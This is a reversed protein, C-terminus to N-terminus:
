LSQLFMILDSRQQASLKLEFRGNYFDVVDALTAASGNHFYPARASLGRLVPVKFNGVDACDGTILGRGLDSVEISKGSLPGSQCQVTFLPLGATNLPSPPPTASPPAAAATSGAPPAAPPLHAVGIDMFQVTSHSGANPVDHCVSCSGRINAVGVVDNLGGVGSINFQLTNFLVEGRAISQADANLAAPSNSWASFMTFVNPDFAQGTPNGGFPDNVGVYFSGRQDALAVPGARAGDTTLSGAGTDSIQSTFHDSEYAVITSLDSASPDSTAQEHGLIADTAQQTLSPERGDWMITSLYDLNTAPLPRRYVSVTGSNPSTLGTAPNSNCAYTDSSVTVTFQANSPIPLGIRILGRSLLLTYAAQRDALTSVPATPCVAGDVPRFMAARGSSGNFQANAEAPTLSWADAPKHCSGCYRGNSGLPIFFPNDALPPPTAIAYTAFDGNRDGQGASPSATSSSADDAAAAASLLLSSLALCWLGISPRNSPNM